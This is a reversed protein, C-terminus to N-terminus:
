GAFASALGILIAALALSLPIIAIQLWAQGGSLLGSGTEIRGNVFQDITVPKRVSDARTTRRGASSILMPLAAFAAFVFGVIMLLYDTEGDLGFALWSAMVFIGIGALLSAYVTPHLESGPAVKLHGLNEEETSGRPTSVTVSSDAPLGWGRAATDCEDQPRSGGSSRELENVQM